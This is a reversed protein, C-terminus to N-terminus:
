PLRASNLIHIKRSQCYCVSATKHAWVGDDVNDMQATWVTAWIELTVEICFM